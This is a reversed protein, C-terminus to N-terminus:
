LANIFIGSRDSNAGNREQQYWATGLEQLSKLEKDRSSLYAILSAMLHVCVAVRTKCPRLSDNTPDWFIQVRSFPLSFFPVFIDRQLVARRSFNCTYIRIVTLTIISSIKIPYQSRYKEM